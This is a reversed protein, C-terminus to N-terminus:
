SLYLGPELLVQIHSVEKSPYPMLEANNVGSRDLLRRHRGSAGTAWEDEGDSHLTQEPGGQSTSGAPVQLFGPFASESDSMNFMVNPDPLFNIDDIQISGTDMPTEYDGGGTPPEFWTNRLADITDRDSNGGQAGDESRPRAVNPIHPLERGFTPQLLRELQRSLEPDTLLSNPTRSTRLHFAHTPLL